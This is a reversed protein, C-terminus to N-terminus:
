ISVPGIQQSSGSDTLKKQVRDILDVIFDVDGEQAQRVTLQVENM